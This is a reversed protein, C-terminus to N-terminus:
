GCYVGPGMQFGHWRRRVTAELHMGDAKVERQLVRRAIALALRVVQEEASAFYRQRDRAFEGVLREGRAREEEVRAAMEAECAERMERGAGERAAEVMAAVQAAREDVPFVAGADTDRIEELPPAPFPVFELLSVSRGGRTVLDVPMGIEKGREFLSIM